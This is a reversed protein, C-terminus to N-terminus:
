RAPRGFGRGYSVLQEERSSKSSGNEMLRTFRGLRCLRRPRRFPTALSAETSRRSAIPRTAPTKLASKPTPPPIMMTGSRTARAPKSPRRAVPVESAAIPMVAPAPATAQPRWPSMLNPEAASIPSGAATPARAPTASCCRSWVRVNVIPNETRRAATPIRRSTQHLDQGSDQTEEAADEGAQESDAAPDQEHRREHEHEAKALHVRLRRRQERDQRGHDRAGPPLLAVSVDVPARGQEEAEARDGADGAADLKRLRQGLVHQPAEEGDEHKGDGGTQGPPGHSHFRGIRPSIVRGSSTQIGSTSSGIPVITACM